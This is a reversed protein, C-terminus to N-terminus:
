EQGINNAEVIEQDDTDVLEYSGDPAENVVISTLDLWLGSTPQDSPAVFWISSDDLVIISGDDSKAAISSDGGTGPYANVDSTNGVETLSVKDGTSLNTAADGSDEVVAPDGQSWSSVTSQDGADVSYVSGDDLTLVAGDDTLADVSAPVPATGHDETTLTQPGSNTPGIDRSRAFARALQGNYGLVASVPFRAEGGDRTRCIVIPDGGCRTSYYSQM